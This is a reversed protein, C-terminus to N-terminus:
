AKKEDTGTAPDVRPERHEPANEAETTPEGIREDIIRYEATETTGDRDSTALESTEDFERTEDLERTEDAAPIPEEAYQSEPTIVQMVVQKLVTVEVGPAIEVIAQKEGSRVLNAYIGSSLMVRAGPKMAELTKRQESQRRKNPRIILFYFVAIMVVILIGTMVPNQM